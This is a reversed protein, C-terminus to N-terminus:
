WPAESFQAGLVVTEAGFGPFTIQTLLKIDALIGLHSDIVWLRSHHERRLHVCVMHCYPIM